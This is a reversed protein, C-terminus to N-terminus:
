QIARAIKSESKGPQSDKVVTAVLRKVGDAYTFESVSNWPRNLSGAVSEAIAALADGSPILGNAGKQRFNYDLYSHTEQVYCVVHVMKKMRVAILRTTYGRKSLVAAALTSYDDCDGSETQLFIQPSQVEARFDFHFGAFHRAFREPTLQPDNQLDDLTVASAPFLRGFAALLLIASLLQPARWRM